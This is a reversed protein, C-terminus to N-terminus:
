SLLTRPTCFFSHLFCDATLLLFRRKAFIKYKTIQIKGKKEAM